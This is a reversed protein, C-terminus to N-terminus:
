LIMIVEIYDAILQCLKDLSGSNLCNSPSVTCAGLKLRKLVILKTFICNTYAIVYIFVGTLKKLSYFYCLASPCTSIKLDKFFERISTKGFQM